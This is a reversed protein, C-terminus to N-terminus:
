PSEKNVFSFKQFILNSPNKEISQKSIDDKYLFITENPFNRSIKRSLKSDDDKKIAEKTEQDRKNNSGKLKENLHIKIEISKLRKTENETKVMKKDNHFQLINIHHTELLLNKKFYGDLTEKNNKEYCCNSESRTNKNTSSYINLKTWISLYGNKVVYVYKSSHSEKSIVQNRYFVCTKIAHPNKELLWLPWNNFLPITQLYNINSPIIQHKNAQNSKSTKFLDFFTSRDIVILQVFSRSILSCTHNSESILPLDGFSM